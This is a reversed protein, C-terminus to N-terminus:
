MQEYSTSAQVSTAGSSDAPVVAPIPLIQMPAWSINSTPVRTSVETM